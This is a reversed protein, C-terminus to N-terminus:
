VNCLIGVLLKDISYATTNGTFFGRMAARNFVSEVQSDM